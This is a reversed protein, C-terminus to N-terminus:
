ETQNLVGSIKQTKTINVNSLKDKNHTIVTQIWIQVYTSFVSAEINKETNCVSTPM